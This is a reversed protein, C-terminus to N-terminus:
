GKWYRFSKVKHYSTQILKGCIDEGTFIGKKTEWCFYHFKPSLRFIRLTFNDNSSHLYRFGISHKRESWPYFNFGNELKEGEKTIHFM